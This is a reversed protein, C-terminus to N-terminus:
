FPRLEAPLLAIARDMVFKHASFGWAHAPRPSALLLLLVVVSVARMWHNHSSRIPGASAPVWRDDTEGKVSPDAKLRVTYHFMRIPACMDTAPPTELATSRATM